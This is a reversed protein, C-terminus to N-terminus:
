QEKDACIWFNAEKLAPASSLWVWCLGTHGNMIAFEEITSWMANLRLLVVMGGLDPAKFILVFSHGLTEWLILYLQPKHFLLSYVLFCLRIHNLLLHTELWKERSDPGMKKRSVAIIEVKISCLCGSCLQWPDTSFIMRKNILNNNAPFFIWTQPNAPFNWAM